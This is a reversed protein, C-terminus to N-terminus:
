QEPSNQAGQEGHTIRSQAYVMQEYPWIYVNQVTELPDGEPKICIKQMWM